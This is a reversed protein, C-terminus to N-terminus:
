AIVDLIQNVFSEIVPKFATQTNKLDSSPNLVVLAKEPNIYFRPSSRNVLRDRLFSLSPVRSISLNRLYPLSEWPISHLKKDPILIIHPTETQLDATDNFDVFKRISNHFKKISDTM